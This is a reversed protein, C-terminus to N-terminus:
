LVIGRVRGFYIGLVALIAGAQICITYANAAQSAAGGEGSGMGMLRQALLLHGTSSVPLYETVGEVM